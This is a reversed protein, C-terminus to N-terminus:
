RAVLRLFAALLEAHFEFRQGVPSWRRGHRRRFRLRLRLFSQGCQVHRSAQSPPGDGQDALPRLIRMATKTTRRYLTLMSYERLHNHLRLWAGSSHHHGILNERVLHTERGSWTTARVAHRTMKASLQDNPMRTSGGSFWAPRLPTASSSDPFASVIAVVLCVIRGASAAALTVGGIARRRLESRQL